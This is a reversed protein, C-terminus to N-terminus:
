EESEGLYKLSEMGDSFLDEMLKQAISFIQENELDELDCGLKKLKKSIVNFWRLNGFMTIAEPDLLSNLVAVLAPFVIMVNMINRQHLGNKQVARIKYEEMPLYILIRDDGLHLKMIDEENTHTIDFISPLNSLNEKKNEIFVAPIDAIGLISGKQISFSNDQYDSDFGESYYKKLDKKAVILVVLELRGDISEVNIKFNNKGIKLEEVSRFKTKSCELHCLISIDNKKFLKILNEEDLNINIGFEYEMDNHKYEVEAKFKSSVFNENGEKLIPYPFLRNENIRMYFFKGGIDM